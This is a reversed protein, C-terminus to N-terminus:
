PLRLQVVVHKCAQGRQAAHETAVRRDVIKDGNGLADDAAQFLAALREAVIQRLEAAIALDSGSARTSLFQRQHETM